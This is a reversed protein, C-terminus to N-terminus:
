PYLDDSKLNLFKSTACHTSIWAIGVGMAIVGVYVVALNEFDLIQMYAGLERELYFLCGTLLLLALLAAILSLEIGKSTFPRRIFGKTAGVLQMTKILFRRAYIALRISSNILAIAIILFAAAVILLGISIKEINESVENLLSREYVANEVISKTSLEDAIRKVKALDVYDAKIRIDIANLLPNYGLFDMFDTGLERQFSRAAQAKSVFRVSKAYDSLSIGKQLRSIELDKANEKLYVSLTFREKVYDSVEKARLLLFGLGGVMFLVLTMSIVVSFHSSRVRRREFGTRGKVM